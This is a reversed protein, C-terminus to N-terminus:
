DADNEEADGSTNDFMGEILKVRITKAELDIKKIFEKVAPLLLEKGNSEIVYVDNAPYKLVDKVVGISAGSDDIVNLGVIDHIFFTGKPPHVADKEDVFLLSGVLEEAATRDAVDAFQLRVGRQEIKMAQIPMEVAISSNAGVFVRKLKKFRAVNDTMPLIVVDGRIGFAKVVKGIAVLSRISLLVLKM